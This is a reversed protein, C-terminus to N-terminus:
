YNAPLVTVCAAALGLCAAVRMYRGRRLQRFLSVAGVVVLAIFGQRSLTIVIATVSLAITALLTVRGIAHPRLELLAISLPLMITLM